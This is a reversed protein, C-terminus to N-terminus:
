FLPSRFVSVGRIYSYGGWCNCNLIMTQYTVAKAICGVRNWFYGKLIMFLYNIATGHSELIGASYGMLAGLIGRSDIRLPIKVMSGGSGGSAYVFRHLIMGHYYISGYTKSLVV